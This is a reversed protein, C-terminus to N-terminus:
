QKSSILIEKRRQLLDKKLALLSRLEESIGSKEKSRIEKYLAKEQQQLERMDIRKSLDSLFIKEDKQDVFAGIALASVRNKLVQDELRNLLLALNVEGLQEYTEKIAQYISRAEQSEFLDGGDEKLLLPAAQPIRLLAEIVHWELGPVQGEKLSKQIRGSVKGGVNSGKLSRWLVAEPIKLKQSVLGVYHAKEVESTLAKLHPILRDVLRAQDQVQPRAEQIQQNFFFTMMPEAQQLETAFREPGIQFLHSDPDTDAPLVKVRPSVGEQQFLPVCRLAAQIGPPDGDFLLVIDEALGKLKRIKYSGLATGLTAVTQKFGHLHLALLDFYGEVVIVQQLSRISPAAQPFGYLIRGKNFVPSEPSNLYKPTEDGLARGGFGIVQRRDDFIPFLLRNRFRDYHGGKEKKIILGSQELLALSAPKNNFFSVLRDWGEPAYGLHFEDAIKRNMKRASLYDRGKQGSKEKLLCHHYFDAAQTQIARLQEKLDQDAGKPQGLTNKPLPIGLRQALESVAEPFSLHHYQMLFTFVNGGFGCGFCHFIQKEENVMFSPTKEPHFPCLGQFNRGAKKLSVVESVISTLNVADKLQAIFSEPFYSTKPM